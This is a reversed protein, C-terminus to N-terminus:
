QRFGDDLLRPKGDVFRAWMLKRQVIGDAGLRLEGTDGRLSAENQLALRGLQPILRFSDAGFSYLRRLSSSEASWNRNVARQVGPSDSGPVLVSPMDPFRVDNMDSDLQPDVNGTFVHSSSYVPFHGAGFFRFQPIIQRAAVPVAAMFIMDADERLRAAAHLPRGLKQRLTAARADSADVNFLERAVASYDNGGPIYEVHELVRGGLTGWQKQFALFLRRGWDNAPSVILARTHGDFFARQAAQQGEDEPALGFQLLDPFAGNLARGRNDADPLEHRNLALTPVTVLGSQLLSAVATKELPGVVFDAGASVANQYREQINLSNADYISVRPRFDEQLFWAALFGDRIAEAAKSFQGRLPLLLAIHKPAVQYRNMDALIRDTILSIAPHAPHDEIWAALSPRMIEPRAALSQYMLALEIWGALDPDGGAEIERLKEQGIANLDSWLSNLNAERRGPEAPLRILAVRERVAPLYDNEMEFAEARIDHSLAQLTAPLEATTAASLSLAQAARRQLLAIRALLLRKYISETDTGPEVQELLKAAAAVESANLYSQASRLQYGSEGDPYLRALRLYEEAALRYEGAAALQMARQEPIDRDGPKTTGPGCGACALAVTLVYGTVRHRLVRKQMLRLFSQVLESTGWQLSAANNEIVTLDNFIFASSFRTKGGGHESFVLSSKNLAERVVRM